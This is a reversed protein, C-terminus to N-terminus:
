KNAKSKGTTNQRAKDGKGPEMYQIYRLTERGATLQHGSQV